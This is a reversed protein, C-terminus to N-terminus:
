KGGGLAYGFIDLRVTLAGDQRQIPTRRGRIRPNARITRRANARVSLQDVFLFPRAEEIRYLVELLAETTGQLQARIRVRPPEEEAGGPLFQTNILRAGAGRVMDQLERQLEAGALAPTEADYYFSKVDENSREQELEARLTPLSALMQRYRAMQDDRSAIEADLEAVRGAWPLGIGAVVALPILVAVSWALICGGRKSAAVNV